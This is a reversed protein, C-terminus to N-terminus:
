QPVPGQITRATATGTGTGTGDAGRIRVNVAFANATATAGNDLEVVVDGHESNGHGADLCPGRGEV